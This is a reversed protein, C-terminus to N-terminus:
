EGYIVEELCLGEAPAKYPLSKRGEGKLAKKVSDITMTGEAVHFCAGMILRIMYTMFGDGHFIVKISDGERLIEIREITRVFDFGDEMRSTFHYFRHTGEFLRIAEEFAEMSFKPVEVQTVHPDFIDREGLHFSYSYVKGKALYRAHFSDPVIELSTVLIDKPLLRNFSNRYRELDLRKKHTEFHIVQGKASVGADTRGAGIIKMPRDELTSLARELEKQVTRGKPLRQFGSYARGDYSVIAKIKAM